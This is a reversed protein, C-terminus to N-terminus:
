AQVDDARETRLGSSESGCASDPEKATDDVVLRPGRAAPRPTRRSALLEAAEPTKPEQRPARPLGRRGAQCYCGAATTGELAGDDKDYKPAGHM